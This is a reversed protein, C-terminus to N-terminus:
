VKLSHSKEVHINAQDPWPGGQEEHQGRELGALGQSGLQLNSHMVLGALPNITLLATLANGDRNTLGALVRCTIRGLGSSPCPVQLSANSSPSGGDTHSAQMAV